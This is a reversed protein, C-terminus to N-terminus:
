ALDGSLKWKLIKLLYTCTEGRLKILKELASQGEESDEVSLSVLRMLEDQTEEPLGDFWKMIQAKRKDARQKEAADHEEDTRMWM